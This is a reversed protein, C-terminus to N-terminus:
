NARDDLGLLRRYQPLVKQWTFRARVDRLGNEVLRQRLLPDESVRRIAISLDRPSAVPVLLGTVGDRVVDRIGPVATAVVPVGAAMAEILVLGFGEAASPLALLDIRALAAQPRAVAGQLKVRNRVGMQSIRRALHERERGTGFIDLRFSRDLMAVATILDPIRKVPDLRGIFGIRVTAPAEMEHRPSESVARSSARGFDEPDIANPIITIRDRPVDARDQAVEAASRSPVVIRDAAHQALRQVWWHWRPQPQTTQISQIFRVGRCFRSAIAAV